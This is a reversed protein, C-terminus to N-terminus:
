KAAEEEPKVPVVIKAPATEPTAPATQPTYPVSTSLGSRQGGLSKPAHKNWLSHLTAASFLGAGFLILGAILFNLNSAGVIGRLWSGFGDISAWVTGGAGNLMGNLADHVSPVRLAVISLMLIAVFLILFFWVVKRM